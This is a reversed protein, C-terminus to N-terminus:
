NNKLSDWILFFRNFYEKDWKMFEHFDYYM